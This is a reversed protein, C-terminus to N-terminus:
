LLGGVNTAPVPQLVDVKRNEHLYNVGATVVQEGQILGSTITVKNQRTMQGTKVLRSKVIGEDAHYVWVYSDGDREFVSNIPVCLLNPNGTSLTVVVQTNMGPALGAAPKGSPKLRITYLQNNNAKQAIGAVELPIEPEKGSPLSATFSVFESSRRYLDVPIDIAIHYGSVDLLSAIPMGANVMEGPSFNVEQIYGSVPAVLRTDNLQNKANELNAEAMKVGAVAKDYDNGAISKRDHLEIVRGAEAKVQDYQGQAALLQVQYDRQDIRAILDGKNVYDGVQVNVSALPGAVRFALGVSQKESVVGPYTRIELSDARTVEALKVKRIVEEAENRHGNCGALLMLFLVAYVGKQILKM